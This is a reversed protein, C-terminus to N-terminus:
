SLRSYEPASRIQAKYPLEKGKDNLLWSIRRISALKQSAKRTLSEIHSRFTLKQDFFTELIEVRQRPRVTNGNFNVQIDTKSREIVMLQTKKKTFSVQWKM